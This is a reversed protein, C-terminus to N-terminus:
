SAACDARAADAIKAAIANLQRVQTATLRGFVLERVYEVHAPASDALKEQGADTLEALTYRGDTPCPRRVVWGRKELRDLVKSLRSLTGNVEAALDSIRLSRHPSISLGHLVGYEFNTIEADRELQRDVAAPLWTLLRLLALWAAQEEESLWRTSSGGMSLM